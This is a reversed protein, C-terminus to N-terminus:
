SRKIVKNTCEEAKTNCRIAEETKGEEYHRAAELHHKAASELHMAAQKHMNIKDNAIIKNPMNPNNQNKTDM